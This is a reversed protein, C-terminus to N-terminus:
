CIDLSADGTISWSINEGCPSERVTTGDVEGGGDVTGDLIAVNYCNEILVANNGNDALDISAIEAAGSQSVCFVGRGGGRSVVRDIYVNTDYSGDALQGNNNAMRFTAYGTGAAVNDGDVLGVQANTTEQLLLGCEGVDRAIVADITLGDINWTEVAHSSAGTVTITGMKVNSNSAEDRDFRIGLGASLDLNIEGLTLDTTGYFHLGFYPDGTMTLYPISVGTTDLSEIAGVGAKYGVNITGCGEFTKGSDISITSAGIDGSAIISIRQGSSISDIGTQIATLYDSGSYVESGGATTTYSGTSGDVVADPNGSGCQANSFPLLALVAVAISGYM